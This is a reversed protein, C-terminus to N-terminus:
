FLKARSYLTDKHVNKGTNQVNESMAFSIDGKFNCIGQSCPGYHNYIIRRNQKGPLYESYNNFFSNRKREKRERM